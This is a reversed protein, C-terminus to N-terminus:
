WRSRGHEERGCLCLYPFLSIAGLLASADVLLMYIGLSSRPLWCMIEWDVAVGMGGVGVLYILNQCEKLAKSLFVLLCYLGAHMSASHYDGVTLDTTARAIFIPSFVSCVKSRCPSPNSHKLASPLPSHQSVIIPRSVPPLLM